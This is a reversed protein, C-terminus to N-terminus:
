ATHRTELYMYTFAYIRGTVFCVHQNGHVRGCQLCLNLEELLTAHNDDIGIRKFLGVQLLGKVLGIICNGLQADIGSM